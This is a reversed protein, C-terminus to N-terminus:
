RPKFVARVVDEEVIRLVGLVEVISMDAEHQYRNVLALMEHHLQQPASPEDTM